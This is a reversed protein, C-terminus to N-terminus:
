NPGNKRIQWVAKTTGEAMSRPDISGRSVLHTKAVFRCCVMWKQLPSLTNANLFSVAELLSGGVAGGASYFAYPVALLGGGIAANGVIFAAGVVSTNGDPFKDENQYVHHESKSASNNGVNLLPEQEDECEQDGNVSAAMKCHELSVAFVRLCRPIFKQM